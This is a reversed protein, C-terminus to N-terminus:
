FRNKGGTPSGYPVGKFEKIGTNAIGQVKGSTTEVTWFLRSESSGAAAPRPQSSSTQASAEAALASAMSLGFIGTTASELLARRTTQSAYQKGFRPQSQITMM